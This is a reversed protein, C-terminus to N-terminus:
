SKCKHDTGKEYFTGCIRCLDKNDEDAPEDAEVKDKIGITEEVKVPEITEDKPQAAEWEKPNFLWKCDPNSCQLMNINVNGEQGTPSVTRSLKKIRTVNIFIEEGCKICPMDSLSNVDINIQQQGVNMKQKGKKFLNTINEAM